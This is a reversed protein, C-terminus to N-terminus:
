KLERRLAEEIFRQGIEKGDESVAEQSETEKFQTAYRYALASVNSTFYDYDFDEPDVLMTRINASIIRDIKNAPKTDVGLNWAYACYEHENMYYESDGSTDTMAYRVCDLSNEDLEIDYGYQELIKNVKNFNAEENYNEGDEVKDGIKTGDVSSVWYYFAHRIEAQKHSDEEGNYIDCIADTIQKGKQLAEEPNIDNKTLNKGIEEHSADLKSKFNEYEDWISKLVVITAGAAASPNKYLNNGYNLFGKKAGISELAKKEDKSLQKGNIFDNLRMQTLGSSASGNGIISRAWTATNRKFDDFGGNNEEEYGVKYGFGTEQSALAMAICAFADYQDSTLGLKESLSDKHALLGEYYAQANQYIKDDSNDQNLEIENFTFDFTSRQDEILETTYIQKIKGLNQVGNTNPNVGSTM